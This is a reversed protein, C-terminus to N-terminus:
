TDRSLWACKSGTGKEPRPASVVAGDPFGVSGTRRSPRSGGLSDRGVQTCLAEPFACPESHCPGRTVVLGSRARHQQAGFDVARGAGRRGTVCGEWRVQLAAEPQWLLLGCVRETGSVTACM